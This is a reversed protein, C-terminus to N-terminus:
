VCAQDLGKEVEFGKVAGWLGKVIQGRSVGGVRVEGCERAGGYRAAVSNTLERFDDFKNGTGCPKAGRGGRSWAVQPPSVM